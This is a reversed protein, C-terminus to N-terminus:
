RSYFEVIAQENVNIGMDERKPLALVEGEWNEKDLKLWSPISIEKLRKPLESFIALKKSKEKISVKDGIKVQISPVTVKQGNLLFHGHTILKRAEQRSSSLGLRFVVNDLRRELNELLIQGTLGKQRSAKQYYNKLQRENIGYIWKLKQKEKLQLAYESPKSIKQGHIGPRYSRRVFPCKSSLCKEGKLFLKEGVARCKRCKPLLKAM